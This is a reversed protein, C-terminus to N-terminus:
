RLPEVYTLPMWHTPEFNALQYLPFLIDLNRGTLIANCGAVSVRGFRFRTFENRVPGQLRKEDFYFLVEQGDPPWNRDAAINNKSANVAVWKAPLQDYTKKSMCKAYAPAALLCATSVVLRAIPTIRM